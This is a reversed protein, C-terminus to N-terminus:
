DINVLLPCWNPIDPMEWDHEIDGAIKRNNVDCFYDFEIDYSDPTPTQIHKCKPCDWCKKIDYEIKIKQM